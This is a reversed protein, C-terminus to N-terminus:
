FIRNKITLVPKKKEAFDSLMIELRIKVLDLCFLIPCKKILGKKSKLFNKWIYICITFSTEKKEAFDSLLIELRIKVLHLYLFFHCKKAFFCLDVGKSFFAIKEVKLFETKWLWFPKKKGHLTVLCKNRTKNQGFRFSGWLQCKEDLVM